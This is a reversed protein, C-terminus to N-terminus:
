EAPDRLACKAGSVAFNPNKRYVGVADMDRFTGM